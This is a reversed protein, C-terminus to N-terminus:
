VGIGESLSGLQRGKLLFSEKWLRPRPHAPSRRAIRELDRGGERRGQGKSHHLGPKFNLHPLIQFKSAEDRLALGLSLISQAEDVGLLCIMKSVFVRSRVRHAALTRFTKM